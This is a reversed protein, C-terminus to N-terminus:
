ADQAQRTHVVIPLKTTKAMHVFARFVDRQQERPSYDYHYDLGTEGIAVVKRHAALKHVEALCSADAIKADHPHIGVTAYIREHKEAIAIAKPNSAFGESAGICVIDTIGVDRARQITAELDEGFETGELHAHSDFFRPGAM